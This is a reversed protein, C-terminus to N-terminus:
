RFEMAVGFRMEAPMSESSKFQITRKRIHTGQTVRFGRWSQGMMEM